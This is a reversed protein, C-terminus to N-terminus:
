RAKEAPTSGSASFSSLRVARKIVRSVTQAPETRTRRQSARRATTGESSPADEEEDEFYEADFISVVFPSEDSANTGTSWGRSHTAWAPDRANETQTAPGNKPSKVRM